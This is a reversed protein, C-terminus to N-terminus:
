PLQQVRVNNPTTSGVNVLVPDRDNGSGTYQATGNLNLDTGFYGSITNNPTTSGVNVLIPDRDNGSGTYQVSGNFNTDGMWLVQVAGSTKTAGTGFTATAVTTFDVNTTTTTLALGNLTMVGLHNRHRLAVRYTGAAVSFPVASVGDTAVVDGDRQILAARSAQIITPMINSRLEVVVWDVIADNGTVALVAPAVTGGSSGVYTYGLATYPETAPIHGGSRLDDRMPPTGANYAGELYAKVSVLVPPTVLTITGLMSTFHVQCHYYITAPMVFDPTFSITTASSPGAYLTGGANSSNSNIVFPHGSSVATLDFSYTQGRNLSIPPNQNGNVIWSLPSANVSVVYDAAVADESVGRPLPAISACSRRDLEKLTQESGTLGYGMGSVLAVLVIVANPLVHVSSSRLDM